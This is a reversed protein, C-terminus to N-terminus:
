FPYACDKRKPNIIAIAEEPIIEPLRM